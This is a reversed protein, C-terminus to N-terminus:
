MRRALASECVLSVLMLALGYQWLKQRDEQEQRANTGAAGSSGTVRSLSAILRDPAMRDPDSERADVNIAVRRPQPTKGNESRAVPLAIVGPEPVVGSPVDGVVYERPEERAMTLYRLTEQVFPVFTPHVPFDNWARNLDSAFYLLRGRGHQYELLAPEGSSFRALVNAGPAEEIRVSRSFRVQGLNAVLPGFSRFIPHRADTPAFSLPSAAANLGARLRIETFIRALADADMDPGAVVLLAGGGSVFREVLERGRRDFGRTGVLVIAAYRALQDTTMEAVGGVSATTLEFAREDVTLARSLYFSERAANGDITVALLSRPAAPDFVLYRTNDAPYGNQDDITISGTGTRPVVMPFRVESFVAPPATVPIESVVRGDVTLRARSAVAEPWSSRIVAALGGDEIRVSTVALNGPPAGVDLIEVDIASPVVAEPAVDWGQKQLDTVLVIRGNADGIQEASLRLAPAYRTAGFGPRLRDIAALAEGPTGVASAVDAADAFMVVGVRGRTGRVANRALKRAQEFREEGGMSFSTDVAVVTIGTGTLTAASTLFPRAFAFALLLLAAVRLALLLLERLRRRSDEVPVRQLFMVASFPVRPAAERTLLHLVIPIAVSVAGVLFAPYLFSFM